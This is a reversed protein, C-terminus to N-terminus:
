EGTKGESHGSTDKQSLKDFKRDAAVSAKIYKEMKDHNDRKEWLQKTLESDRVTNLCAAVHLEKEVQKGHLQELNCRALSEGVTLWHQYIDVVGERNGNCYKILKETLNENPKRYDQWKEEM